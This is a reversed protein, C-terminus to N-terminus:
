LGARGPAHSALAVLGVGLVAVGAGAAVQTWPVRRVRREPALVVDLRVEQGPPVYVASFWPEFGPAVVELGHKGAPLPGYVAEGSVLEPARDNLRVEAGRPLGMLRLEGDGLFLRELMVPDPWGGALVPALGQQVQGTSAAAVFRVGLSTEDVHEVMAIVDVGAVRAAERWCSAVMGCDRLVEGPPRGLRAEVLPADTLMWAGSGQLLLGVREADLQGQAGDQPEPVVAAHVVLQPAALAPSALTLMVGVHVALALASTTSMRRGLMGGSTVSM